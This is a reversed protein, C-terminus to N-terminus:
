IKPVIQNCICLLIANRQCIWVITKHYSSFVVHVMTADNTDFGKDVHLSAPQYIRIAWVTATFLATAPAVIASLIASMGCPAVAPVLSEHLM